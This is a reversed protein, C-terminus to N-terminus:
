KNRVWTYDCWGNDVTNTEYERIIADAMKWLAQKTSVYLRV